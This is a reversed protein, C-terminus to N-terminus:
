MTNYTCQINWAVYECIHGINTKCGHVQVTGYFARLEAISRLKSVKKRVIDKWTYFNNVCYWFAKMQWPPIKHQLVWIDYKSKCWNQKNLLVTGFNPMVSHFCNCKYIRYHTPTQCLPPVEVGTSLLKKLARASNFNYVLSWWWM